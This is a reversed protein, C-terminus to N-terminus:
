KRIFWQSSCHITKQGKQAGSAPDDLTFAVVLKLKLWNKKELETTINKLTSSDRLLFSLEAFLAAAAFLFQFREKCEPHDGPLLSASVFALIGLFPCNNGV